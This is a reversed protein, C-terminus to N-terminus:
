VQTFKNIEGAVFVMVSNTRLSLFCGVKWINAVSQWRCFSAARTETNKKLQIRNVITNLPSVAPPLLNTM